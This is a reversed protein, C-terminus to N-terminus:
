NSLTVANLGINQKIELTM